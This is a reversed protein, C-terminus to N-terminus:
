SSKFFTLFFALVVGGAKAYNGRASGCAAQVFYSEDIISGERKTGSEDPSKENGKGYQRGEGSVSLRL